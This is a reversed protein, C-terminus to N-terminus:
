RDRGPRQLLSLAVAAIAVVLAGAAVARWPHEHAYRDVEAAATRARRVATREFDIVRGTGGQILEQADAAARRLEDLAREIRQSQM